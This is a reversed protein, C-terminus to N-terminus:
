CECTNGTILYRLIYNGDSDLDIAFPYRETPTRDPLQAIVHSALVLCTCIVTPIKM